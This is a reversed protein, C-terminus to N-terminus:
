TCSPWAMSAKTHLGLVPDLGGSCFGSNVRDKREVQCTREPRLSEKLYEHM